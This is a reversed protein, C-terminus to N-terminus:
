SVIGESCYIFTNGNGIVQFVKRILQSHGIDHCLSVYVQGKQQQIAQLVEM